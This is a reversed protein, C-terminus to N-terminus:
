CDLCDKKRQTWLVYEKDVDPEYDGEILNLRGVEIINYSFEHLAYM